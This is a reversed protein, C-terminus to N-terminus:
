REGEKPIKVKHGTVMSIAYGGKVVHTVRKKITTDYAFVYVPENM